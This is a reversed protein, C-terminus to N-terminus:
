VGCGGGGNAQPIINPYKAMQSQVNKIFQSIASYKYGLIEKPNVNEWDINKDLKFYLATQIYNQPFWFSNFALAERYLEDETLGESAGLQLLGLLASGHNCDQFFTSNDCCPRYTNKAIETVLAEQQSSLNVIKFKNFYTGGNKEKGLTWGGTSAFNFLSSGNVPSQSNTTMYNSLGLPWLLNLYTSSNKLTLNIPTYSPSTLASELDNPIGGRNKYLEELKNKDIVGNEVLNIVSEGLFIKSKFGEKPLVKAVTQNYIENGQGNPKATESLVTNPSPLYQAIAPDEKLMTFSILVLFVILIIIRTLWPKDKELFNADHPSPCSEDSCQLTKLERKIFLIPLAMLGFSLAKLELGQLPFAALGGTIGILSLVLSGCVPCASGAIGVLTGLSSASQTKFKPPGFKRWRYALLAVNVGFLIITGFTLLVYPWFYLSERYTNAILSSISSNLRLTWYFIIFLFLSAVTGILVYFLKNM